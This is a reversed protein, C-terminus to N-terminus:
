SGEIALQNTVCDMLLKRIRVLAKYTTQLTRGSRVAAEKVGCGPEYRTLIMERDRLPLKELCHFLAKHRADIEEMMMSATDSVAELVVQDFIVKSRAHKKRVRRIEWFAIRCAWAVFDTDPEFQNFKECIIVCSDQLVDDAESRNPVLSYIYAFIQHQHRLMLSLLQKHQENEPRNNSM